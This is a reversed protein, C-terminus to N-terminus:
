NWILDDHARNQKVPYIIKSERRKLPLKQLNRANNKRSVPNMDIIYDM